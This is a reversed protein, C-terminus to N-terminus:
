NLLNTATGPSPGPTPRDDSATGGMELTACTKQYLDIYQGASHEWSFDQLMGNIQMKRWLAPNRFLLFARKIAELLSGANAEDFVVGSARNNKLTVPTADIVTDALGGTNRVVPITGYRLSYMQNLGCPEFRSPMLFLDCGGEILHALSEDYGINVAIRDPFKEALRLLAGEYEPEGSGILVFKMPFGALSPLIHAILDVGKQHVLRGVCGILPGSFDGALNFRELLNKKNLRKKDLDTESYRAPLRTDTRPDWIETDIGNLIGSLIGSRFRLLGDLGYGFEATQIERAYHPSVTNIRDAYVLGGKIFSLQQHFELSEIAWFHSALNLDVFTQYPFLGQYALNHLTFLTAPRSNELSLLAPVLGTQWDNCHVLDPRWSLAARDMAIACVTRCFLAFRAANDPWPSGNASLYPNGPRDFLGPEDILWIKLPSGPLLTELIRVPKREIELVALTKVEPISQFVQRYAPMVVRIDPGMAHVARPLSGAVDGLGGTKVLPFLESVAFLIRLM